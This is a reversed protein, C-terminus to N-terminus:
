ESLVYFKYIDREKLSHMRIGRSDGDFKVHWSNNKTPGLIQMVRGTDRKKWKQNRKIPGYKSRGVRWNTSTTESM